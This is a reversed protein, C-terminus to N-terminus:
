GDTGDLRRRCLYTLHRPLIEKGTCRESQNGAGHVGSDSLCWRGRSQAGRDVAHGGCRQRDRRAIATRGYLKWGIQTDGSDHHRLDVVNFRATITDASTGITLMSGPVRMSSTGPAWTMTNAFLVESPASVAIDTFTPSFPRVGWRLM